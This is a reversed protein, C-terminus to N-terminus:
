RCRTTPPRRIPTSPSRAGPGLHTRGDVLVATRVALALDAGGGCGLYGLAGSYVGRARTERSGTIEMTRLKPAGTAATAYSETAMLRPVRVTGTRPIRGLEDRFLDM